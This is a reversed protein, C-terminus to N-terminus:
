FPADTLGDGSARTFDPDDRMSSFNGSDEEWPPLGAQKKRSLFWSVAPRQEGQYTTHKVRAAGVKGRWLLINMEGVPIGFSEFIAGLNQNTMQTNQPDFVLYYFIKGHFGSVKLTLRIMDKGTKSRREDAEEIRVRHDGVPVIQYNNERYDQANYEWGIM